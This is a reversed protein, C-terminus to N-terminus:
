TLTDLTYTVLEDITMAEGHQRHATLDGLQADVATQALSRCANAIPNGGIGLLDAHRAAAALLVAATENDHRQAAIAAATCAGYIVTRTLGEDRAIRIGEAATTRARDTDGALADHAAAVTLATAHMTPGTQRAPDIASQNLERARDFQGAQHLVNAFNMAWTILLTPTGNRRIEPLLREYHEILEGSDWAAPVIGRQAEILLQMGRPENATVLRHTHEWRQRFVVPDNRQIGVWMLAVVAEWPTDVGTAAALEVAETAYREGARLDGFITETRGAHALASLRQDPDLDSRALLQQFWALGERNRVLTWYRSLAIVGRAADNVNGTALLYAFATRYNDIDADIADLAGAEGAEFLGPGLAVARDCWFRAHRDQVETADAQEALRDAAYQRLTELLRFRANVAGAVALVMSKDVLHGVADLVEFGEVTGGAAIAEAADLDFSGALTSLRQFVRKETADLLDYSWAVTAQLTRHREVATRGGGTLLRFRQDLREAIKTPTMMRARAAALEIALPIGDLRVCIEGIARRQSADLTAGAQIAREIFLEVAETGEALPPVARVREAAIGLPERSTALVRVGPAGSAVQEVIRAVVGLVHECNDLIVLLQRARLRGVLTTALAEGTQAAVGLVEAITGLVLEGHALPALDVLWVGDPYHPLMEAGVEVALRTKGVGGVGTLTVVRHEGLLRGVEVIERERGVFSSLQLPLNTSYSELSRLVAFEGGGVQWVHEARSLDRLRHEGLDRLDGRDRVLSATTEGCVIQGGHAVGMLRACRNLTSGFYDGDRLEAEGTHM